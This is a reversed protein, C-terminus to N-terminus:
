ELECTIEDGNNLKLKERLNVAAVIEVINKHQTKHPKIIYGKYINQIKIPYIDIPYLDIKEPTIFIKKDEPLFPYNNVALNLIGPFPIFSIVEKLSENYQPTFHSGKGLGSSVIGKILM